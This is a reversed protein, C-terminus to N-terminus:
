SYFNKLCKNFIQLKIAVNILVCKVNVSDLDAIKWDWAKM